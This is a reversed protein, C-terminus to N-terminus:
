VAPHTTSPSVPVSAAPAACLLARAFGALILLLSIDRAYFLPRYVFGVINAIGPRYVRLIAQDAMFAVIFITVGAALLNRGNMPDPLRAPLRAFYFFAAVIGAPVLYRLVWGLLDPVRLYQFLTTAPSYQTLFLLHSLLITTGLFLPTTQASKIMSRFSGKLQTHVLGSRITTATGSGPRNVHTAVLALALTILTVVLALTQGYTFLIMAVALDHNDIPGGYIVCLPALLCVLAVIFPFVVAHRTSPRMLMAIWAILNIVIPLHFFLAISPGVFVNPVAAGACGSWALM